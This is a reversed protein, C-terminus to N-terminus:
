GKLCSPHPKGPATQFVLGDELYLPLKVTFISGENLRSEVSITGGCLDTIRKAISLGLGLGNVASPGQYYKDFIHRATEEDMGIGNDCIVVVASKGYCHLSVYIEGGSPTYKIANNLLNLWLQQLLEENNNYAVEDFDGSFTINKKNWVASLMIVCRRLQEDLSYSIRDSIIQQSDLKSLALTSNALDALRASEDAIIQLYRKRDEDSVNQELLLNAFGNIAVIPTKFEHSYNNVFDSRLMSTNQLESAMKNFDDYLISLFDEKGSGLRVSFDGAAIKHIGGVLNLFRRSTYRVTVVNYVALIIFIIFYWFGIDSRLAVFPFLFHSKMGVLFFAILTAILLIVSQLSIGRSLSKYLENHRQMM